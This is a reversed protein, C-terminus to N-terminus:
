DETRSPPPAPPLPSEVREYDIQLLAQRLWRNSAFANLHTFVPESDEDPSWVLKLGRSGQDIPRRGPAWLRVSRITHEKGDATNVVVGHEYVELSEVDSKKPEDRGGTWLRGLLVVAAVLLFAASVWGPGGSGTLRTLDAVIGIGALALVWPALSPLRRKVYVDQLEGLAPDPPTEDEEDDFFPVAPLRTADIGSEEEFDLWLELLADDSNRMAQKRISEVVAVCVPVLLPHDVRPAEEDEAPTEALLDPDAVALWERVAPVLDIPDTGDVLPWTESDSELLLATLHERAQPTHPYLLAAAEAVGERVAAALKRSTRLPRQALPKPEESEAASRRVWATIQDPDSEM